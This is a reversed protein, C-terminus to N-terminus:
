EDQNLGEPETSSGNQNGGENDSSKEPVPEPMEFGNRQALDNFDQFLADVTDYFLRDLGDQDPTEGLAKGIEQTLLDLGLDPKEEKEEDEKGQGTSKRLMEIEVDLIKLKRNQDTTMEMLECNLEYLQKNQKKALVLLKENEQFQEYLRLGSQVAAILEDHDWPKTIYKQVSGRNVALLITEMESYGTILFRVTDPSISKAAEFFQTGKIGPMRQDAIILSFPKTATKIKELGDKGNDVTVTEIKEMELIRSIAKAVKAEDDVILVRHGFESEM